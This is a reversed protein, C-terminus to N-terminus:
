GIDAQTFVERPLGDPIGQCAQEIPPVEFFGQSPFDRTALSAFKLQHDQHELYRCASELLFATKGGAPRALVATLKGPLWQMGVDDLLDFGTPAGTAMSRLDTQWEDVSYPSELSRRVAHPEYSTEPAPSRAENDGVPVFTDLSQVRVDPFDTM